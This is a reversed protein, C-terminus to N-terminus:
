NGGGGGEGNWFFSTFHEMSVRLPATPAAVAQTDSVKHGHKHGDSHPNKERYKTDDGEGKLKRKFMGKGTIKKREVVEERGKLFGWIGRKKTKVMKEGHVDGGVFISLEALTPQGEGPEGVSTGDVTSEPHHLINWITFSFPKTLTTATTGAQEDKKQKQPHSSSPLLSRFSSPFHISSRRFTLKSTQTHHTPLSHPLSLSLTTLTLLLIIHHHM